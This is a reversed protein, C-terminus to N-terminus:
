VVQTVQNMIGPRRATFSYTNMLRGLHRPGAIAILMDLRHGRADYLRLMKGFELDLNRYGRHRGLRSRMDVVCGDLLLKLM